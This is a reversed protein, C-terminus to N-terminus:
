SERRSCEERLSRGRRYEIEADSNSSGFHYKRGIRRTGMKSFIDDDDSLLDNSPFSRGPVNEFRKQPVQDLQPSPFDQQRAGTGVGEKTPATLMHEEGVSKNSTLPTMSFSDELVDSIEVYHTTTIIKTLVSVWIIGVPILFHRSTWTSSPLTEPCFFNSDPTVKLCGDGSLGLLGARSLNRPQLNKHLFQLIGNLPFTGKLLPHHYVTVLREQFLRDSLVQLAELISHIHQKFIM